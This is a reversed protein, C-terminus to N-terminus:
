FYLLPISLINIEYLKVLFMFSALIKKKIHLSNYFNVSKSRGTLNSAQSDKCNAM